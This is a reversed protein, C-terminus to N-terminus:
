QWLTIPPLHHWSSGPLSKFQTAWSILPCYCLLLGGWGEPPTWEYWFWPNLWFHWHQIYSSALSATQSHMREWRNQWPPTLMEESMDAIGMVRKMSHLCLCLHITKHEWRHKSFSESLGSNRALRLSRHESESFRCMWPWGLRKRRQHLDRCTSTGKAKVSPSNEFSTKRM